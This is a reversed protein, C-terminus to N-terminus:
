SARGHGRGLHNVLSASFRELDAVLRDVRGSLASHALLLPIAIALGAVTTILAEYIGGAMIGPDGSGLVTIMDFTSMMGTVTGLLGLMPAVGTLIGLLSLFRELRPLEHLMQEQVADEMAATSETRRALGARLTRAMASRGDATMREADDARGERCRALVAEGLATAGASERGLTALRELALLLGLVAVVALPIMVPGGAKLFGWADRAGARRDFAIQRTVDLPLVPAAAPSEIARAVAEKAAASLDQTWRWGDEGDPAAVALGVRGSPDRYASFLLGARVLQADTERGDAGRIRRAFVATSGAEALLDSFLGLLAAPDDEARALRERQADRRESPPLVGLLDAIKRRADAAVRRAEDVAAKAADREARKASRGARVAELDKAAAALARTRDVLEDTRKGLEARARVLEAEGAEDEKRIREREAALERKAEDLAQRLRDPEQALVVALILATM